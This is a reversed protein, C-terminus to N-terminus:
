VRMLCTIILWPKSPHSERCSREALLDRTVAHRTMRQRDRASRRSSITTPSPGSARLTDVLYATNQATPRVWLYVPQGLGHDGLPGRM